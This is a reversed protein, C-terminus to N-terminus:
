TGLQYSQLGPGQLLSLAPNCVRGGPVTRPLIVTRSPATSNQPQCAKCYCGGDNNTTREMDYCYLGAVASLIVEYFSLYHVYKRALCPERRWWRPPNRTGHRQKLARLLAPQQISPAALTIIPVIYQTTHNNGNSSITNIQRSRVETGVKAICIYVCMYLYIDQPGQRAWLRAGSFPARRMEWARARCTPLEQFLSKSRNKYRNESPGTM